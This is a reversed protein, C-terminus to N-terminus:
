GPRAACPPGELRHSYACVMSTQTLLVSSDHFHSLSSSDLAAFQHWWRGRQRPRIVTQATFAQGTGRVSLLLCHRHTRIFDLAPPSLIPIQSTTMGSPSERDLPPIRPFHLSPPSLCPLVIVVVTSSGSSDSRQRQRGLQVSVPSYPPILQRDRHFPASAEYWRWYAHPEGVGWGFERRRWARYGYHWQQM